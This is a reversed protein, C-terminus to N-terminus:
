EWVETADNGASDCKDATNGSMFCMVSAAFGTACDGDAGSGPADCTQEDGGSGDRARGLRMARPPKYRLYGGAGDERRREASM